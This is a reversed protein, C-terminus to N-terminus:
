PCLLTTGHITTLGVFQWLNLYQPLNQKGNGQASGCDEPGDMTSDSCSVHFDSEGIKTDTGANFIEWIVDNPSGTYGSVTVVQGVAINDQTSIVPATVAGYHAKIKIPGTGNWRMKLQDIHGDCDFPTPPTPPPITIQCSADTGFKVAGSYQSVNTSANNAFNLVLTKTEGPKIRRKTQDAVFGSTITAPSPVSGTWFDGNLSMKLLNGNTAQPWTLDVESVFIDATGTNKLKLQLQKSAIKFEVTSIMCAPTQGGICVEATDQALVAAQPNLVRAINDICADCPEPMIENPGTKAPSNHIDPITVNGFGATGFADHSVTVTYSDVYNWNPFSAEPSPSNVLYPSPCCGNLPSNLNDTLSTSACLIHNINGTVLRGDGGNAGLTGYGSPYPITGCGPFTKSTAASIYDLFFDLVVAGSGNTFRFEAKDSGTLNGFTHGRTWGALAAGPTGYANDNLNRSQRLTAQVDGNPLVVATLTGASGGGGSVPVCLPTPLIVTKTFTRSEGPNLNIGSAVVFDDSTDNPTGADDVIRLDSLPIVGCNTIVYTYTVQAGPPATSSSATKTLTVCPENGTYGCDVTLDTGVLHVCVDCDVAGTCGCNSDNPNHPDGPTGGCASGSVTHVFGNPTHFRVTYDGNCLGTFHYLGDADTTTTQIVNGGNCGQLLEVTVGPIGPEGSDQCGNSNLDRWVRDGIQGTCPPIYGCDITLDVTNVPLHVCVFCNQTGFPDCDCDSDKADPPEGGVNCGQNAPTHVYGNPTHFGISYDGACLGTFLYKGNADTTTSRVFTVGGCGTYLDVQVGPIGPEGPDQCGNSNNDQWVFDGITGNCGPTLNFNLDGFAMPGSSRLTPGNTPQSVVTWTFWGSAGPDINKGNAGSQPQLGIQFDHMTFAINVVAGAFGGTGTLTGTFSQYHHWTSPDVPGGTGFPPM